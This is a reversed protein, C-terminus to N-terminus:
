AFEFISFPHILKVEKVVRKCQFYEWLKDSNYKVKCQESVSCKEDRERYCACNLRILFM